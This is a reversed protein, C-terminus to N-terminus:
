LVSTGVELAAQDRCIHGNYNAYVLENDWIVLSNTAATYQWSENRILKGGWERPYDHDADYAIWTQRSIDIRTLPRQSLERARDLIEACRRLTIPHSLDVTLRTKGDPSTVGRGIEVGCENPAYGTVLIHTETETETM